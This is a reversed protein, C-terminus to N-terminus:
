CRPCTQYINGVVVAAAIGGVGLDNIAIILSEVRDVIGGIVTRCILVFRVNFKVVEEILISGVIYGGVICIRGIEFGSIIIVSGVVVIVVFEVLVIGGIIIEIVVLVVAAIINGNVIAGILIIQNIDLIRGGENGDVISVVGGVDVILLDAIDGVDVIVEV